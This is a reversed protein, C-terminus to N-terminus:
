DIFSKTRWMKTFTYKEGKVVPMTEHEALPNVDGEPTLNNWGYASGQNPTQPKAKRIQPFHIQGGEDAANLHVVLTWTRQGYQKAHEEYEWTNPTFWDMHPKFYEGESFKEFLLGESHSFCLNMADCMKNEIELVLDRNEEDRAAEYVHSTRFNEKGTTTTAPEVKDKFADIIEECKDKSLFEQIAFLQLDIDPYFDAKKPTVSAMAAGYWEKSLIKGFKM